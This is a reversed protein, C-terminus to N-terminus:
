KKNTVGTKGKKGEIVCPQDFRVSPSGDGRKQWCQAASQQQFHGPGLKNEKLNMIESRLIVSFIGPLSM